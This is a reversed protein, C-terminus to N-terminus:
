TADVGLSALVARARRRWVTKIREPLEEYECVKMLDGGYAAKAVAEVRAKAAPILYHKGSAATFNRMTGAGSKLFCTLEAYKLGEPIEIMPAKM